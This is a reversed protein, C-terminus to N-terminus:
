ESFGCIFKFLLLHLKYLDTLKPLHEIRIEDKTYSTKSMEATYYRRSTRIQSVFTFLINQFYM